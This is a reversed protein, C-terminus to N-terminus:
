TGPQHPPLRLRYRILINGRENEIRWVTDEEKKFQVNRGRADTASFNEIFRWYRDNYEPHVAMAIRAHAPASPVQMEVDFGSLDTANITIKYEISPAGVATLAFFLLGACVFVISRIFTQM